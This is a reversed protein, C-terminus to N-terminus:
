WKSVFGAHIDQYAKSLHHAKYYFKINQRPIVVIEKGLIGKERVVREEQSNKVHAPVSKSLM